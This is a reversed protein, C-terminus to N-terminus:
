RQLRQRGAAVCSKYFIARESSPASSDALQRCRAELEKVPDVANDSASFYAIAIALGILAGIVGGILKFLQVFCGPSSSRLRIGCKPCKEAKSSIQTGCEKCKVLSM